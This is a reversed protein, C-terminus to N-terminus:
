EPPVTNVEVPKSMTVLELENPVPGKFKCDAWVAAVGVKWIPPSTVMVLARLM